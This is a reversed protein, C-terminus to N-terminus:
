RGTPHYGGAGNPHYGGSGTPHYGSSGTPQYRAVTTTEISRATPRAAPGVAAAAPGTFAPTNADRDVATVYPHANAATAALLFGLCTLIKM